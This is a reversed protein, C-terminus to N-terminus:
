NQALEKELRDIDKALTELLATRRVLFDKALELTEKPDTGVFRVFESVNAQITSNQVSEATWKIGLDEFFQDQKEPTTCDSEIIRTFVSGTAKALALEDRTMVRNEKNM